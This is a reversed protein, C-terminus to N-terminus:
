QEDGQFLFEVLEHEDVEWVLETDMGIVNVDGTSSVIFRCHEDASIEQKAAGYIVIKDRLVYRKDGTRKTVFSGVPIRGAQLIVKIM